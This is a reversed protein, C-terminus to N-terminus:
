PGTAKLRSIIVELPILVLWLLPTYEVLVFALPVSSIFLSATLVGDLLDLRYTRSSIRKKLLGARRAYIFMVTDVLTIAAIVTAFLVWALPESVFTGILESPFPLTAVLALFLFNLSVITGDIARFSDFLHHHTSWIIAVVFVTVGFAIVTPTLEALGSGLDADPAPAEFSLVLLTLTIAFVGDSLRGVRDFLLSEQGKARELLPVTPTSQTTPVRPLNRSDEDDSM